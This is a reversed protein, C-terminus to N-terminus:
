GEGGRVPSLPYSSHPLPPRFAESLWARAEGLSDVCADFLSERGEAILCREDARGYGTRVLLTRTGANRGAELDSIKDGVFVSRALDLGREAAAAALLGPRPKRCACDDDPRHPCFYWGDIRAGEGALAAEIAHAVRWFADVQYYGRGIGAQNTVVLVPVGARNCDALVPAVGGIMILKAPDHLYDVEENLVGDRDLFLAPRREAPLPPM